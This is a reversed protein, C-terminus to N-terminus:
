LLIYSVRKEAIVKASDTNIMDKLLLLKKYFHNTSTGDINNVYEEKNM